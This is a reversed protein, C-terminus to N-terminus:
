ASYQFIRGFGNLATKFMEGKRWENLDSPDWSADESAQENSFKLLTEYLLKDDVSDIVISYDRYIREKGEFKVRKIHFYGGSIFGAKTKKWINPLPNNFKLIKPNLCTGGFIQWCKVLREHNTRAFADGYDDESM